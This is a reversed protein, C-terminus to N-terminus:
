EDNGEGLDVDAQYCWKDHKKCFPQLGEGRDSVILKHSRCEGRPPIDLDCHEVRASLGGPKSKAKDEVEETEEDQMGVSNQYVHGEVGVNDVTQTNIMSNIMPEDGCPQKDDGVDCSLCPSLSDFGKNDLDKGTHKDNNLTHILGFTTTASHETGHRIIKGQELLRKIARDMTPQSIATPLEQILDARRLNGRQSLLKTVMFMAYETKSSPISEETTWDLWVGGDSIENIRLVVPKIPKFWSGLTTLSYLPEGSVKDKRKQVGYIVSAFRLLVNTGIVENLSLEMDKEKNQRKRTHHILCIHLNYRNAIDTLFFIVPKIATADKEEAFHFASFSDVVVFDPRVRDILKELNNKGEKTALDIYFGRDAMDFKSVIFLNDKMANTTQM